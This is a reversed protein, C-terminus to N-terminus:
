YPNPLVNHQGIMYYYQALSLMEADEESNGYAYITEFDALKIVELVRLKKQMCSCDPTLYKGTLKGNKMEVKSCILEINLAQAIIELYLDITASVLIVKHGLQQHQKLQKLLSPELSKLIKGAYQQALPYIKKLDCGKFMASYLKPRMKHAPYLKLYYAMIWPLVKIGRKLIHRKGLSYFIFGTFSDHEYLTGDFDFLALNKYKQSKAHM